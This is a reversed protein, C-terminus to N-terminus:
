RASDLIHQINNLWLLNSALVVQTFEDVRKNQTRIENLESKKERPNFSKRQKETIINGTTCNSSDLNRGSYEERDFEVDDGVEDVSVESLRLFGGNVVCCSPESLYLLAVDLYMGPFISRHPRTHTVPSITTAIGFKETKIARTPDVHQVRKANM